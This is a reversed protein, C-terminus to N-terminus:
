QPQVLNEGGAVVQVSNIQDGARLQSLVDQGEVVYGFVSYRGDLLNYGPPTLERDFLFFFFQSSGGNPDSPPHALALAGYSSFPLALDALPIGYDELTVEYIPEEDGKILVELPISRYKGTEDIFGVDEGPPDGTQIYFAEDSRTFTLGNYFGREVLDVFNGANVPASYGDVIMTLNGKETTMEVTARGKLQPLSAYDEPVEFPFGVVMLEELQTVQELIESTQETIKDRNKTSALDKLQSVEERMQSILAEAESQKEEPVDALIEKSGFNLIAAASKVDKTLVGWRKTRLQTSIDEISFQLNRIEQNDIPLAYRLLAEPDMIANGQALRSTRTSSSNDMNWWAGSLGLSFTFLVLALTVTKLLSKYWDFMFIKALKM